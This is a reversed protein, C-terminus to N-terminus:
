ENRGSVRILPTSVPTASTVGVMNRDTIEWALQLPEEPVHVNVLVPSRDAPDHRHPKLNEALHLGIMVYPGIM